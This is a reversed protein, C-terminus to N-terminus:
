EYTVFYEADVYVYKHSYCQETLWFYDWSPFFLTFKEKMQIKQKPVPEVTEVPEKCREEVICAM